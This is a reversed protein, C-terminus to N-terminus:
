TWVSHLAMYEMYLHNGSESAPRLAGSDCRLYGVWLGACQQFKFRGSKEDGSLAIVSLRESINEVFLLAQDSSIRHKGPM